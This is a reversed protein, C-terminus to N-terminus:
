AAGAKARARARSVSRLADEEGPSTCSIRRISRWLESWSRILNAGREHQSGLVVDTLAATLAPVFAFMVAAQFLAALFIAWGTPWYTFVTPGGYWFVRRTAGVLLSPAVCVRHWLFARTGAAFLADPAALFSSFLALGPLAFTAVPALAFALSAQLAPGYPVLFLFRMSRIMVLVFWGCVVRDVTESMAVKPELSFFSTFAELWSSRAVAVFDGQLVESASKMWSDPLLYLTFAITSFIAIVFLAFDLLLWWTWIGPEVVYRRRACHCAGACWSGLRRERRTDSRYSALSRMTSSKGTGSGARRLFSGARATRGGRESPVHEVRHCHYYVIVAHAVILYLLLLGIVLFFGYSSNIVGATKIFLRSATYGSRYQSEWWGEATQQFSFTHAISLGTNINITSFEVFVVRTSASYWNNHYLYAALCQSLLLNQASTFNAPPNPVVYYGARDYSAVYLLSTSADVTLSYTFNAFDLSAVTWEFAAGQTLQPQTSELDALYEPTCWRAISIPDSSNGSSSNGYYSTGPFFFDDTAQRDSDFPPYCDRSSSFSVCTEAPARLQRFRPMSTVLHTIDMFSNAPDLSSVANPEGYVQFFVSLLYGTVQAPTQLSEFETIEPNTIQASMTQELGIARSSEELYLAAVTIGALMLPGFVLLDLVAFHAALDSQLRRRAREKAVGDNWKEVDLAESILGELDAPVAQGDQLQASTSLESESRARGTDSGVSSVSASDPSLATPAAFSAAATGASDRLRGGGSQSAEAADTPYASEVDAARAAADREAAKREYEHRMRAGLVQEKIERVRKLRSAVEFPEFAACIDHSPLPKPRVHLVREDFRECAALFDVVCSSDLCVSGDPAFVMLRSLAVRDMKWYEGVQSLLGAFTSHRAVRISCERRNWFVQVPVLADGSFGLGGPGSTLTTLPAGAEASARRQRALLESVPLVQQELFSTLKIAAASAPGDPRSATVVALLAAPADAPADAARKRKRLESLQSMRVSLEDRTSRIQGLTRVLEEQLVAASDPGAAAGGGGTEPGDM